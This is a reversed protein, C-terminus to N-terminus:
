QADVFIQTQAARYFGAEVPTLKYEPVRGEEDPAYAVGHDTYQGTKETNDFRALVFHEGSQTPTFATSFIGDNAEQDAGTGDDVFTLEQVTYDPMEVEGSVGFGTIPFDGSVSANLVVPQHVPLPEEGVARVSAFFANENSVPLGSITYFLDGEGEIPEAWLYWLGAVPAYLELKCFSYVEEGEEAEDVVDGCDEATVPYMEGNPDELTLWMEDPSGFFELAIEVEGLTSDLYVEAENRDTLLVYKSDVTVDIVPSSQAEIEELSRELMRANPARRFLGGTWETAFRLLENAAPNEGSGIAYLLIDEEYLVDALQILTSAEPPLGSQAVMAALAEAEPEEEMLTAALTDIEAVTKGELGTMDAFLYISWVFSEDLDAENLLAYANEVAAGLVPQGSGPAITEVQAILGDRSDEGEILTPPIVQLPQQDFVMVGIVDGPESQDILSQVAAKVDDLRAAAVVSSRDIVVQRVTGLWDGGTEGARRNANGGTGPKFTVKVAETATTKAAETTLELSPKESGQPAVKALEPYYPRGFQRSPEPDKRPERLLTEWGSSQYMRFQANSDSANTSAVSFNLWQPDVLNDDSDLAKWQGNMLSPSIAEDTECPSGPRDSSCASSSQYEDYLGYFFHGWEHGITYGGARTRKLMDYRSPDDNGIDCHQVRLGAKGRGGVHANFWCPRGDDGKDKLWLIDTNDAFAGDTFVTVKGIRHAGNSAEYVAESLHRLNATIADQKAKTNDFTDYYSVRLDINKPKVAPTTPGGTQPDTPTDGAGPDAVSAQKQEQHSLYKWFLGGPQGPNPAFALEASHLKGGIDLGELRLGLRADTTACANGDATCEAAKLSALDLEWALAADPVNQAARLTAQYNQEQYRVCPLDITLTDMAVSPAACSAAYAPGSAVAIALALITPRHIM